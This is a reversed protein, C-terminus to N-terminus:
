NPTSNPLHSFDQIAASLANAAVLESPPLAPNMTRLWSRFCLWDEATYNISLHQLLGQAICGLQVHVHFAAMKRRISARYGIPISSL